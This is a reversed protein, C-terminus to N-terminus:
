NESPNNRIVAPLDRTDGALLLNNGRAYEHIFEIRDKSLPHTSLFPPPVDRNKGDINMLSQFLEDAGNLHGYEAAVAALGTRDAQLEQSRTFNLLTIMGASNVVKGVFYESSLGSIASLLLGIVVGRGMAIVPHRHLIHGMEHAIVMALANEHPLMDIIGRYIYIHGGLTAYANKVAADIYHVNFQMEPPVDMHRALRDSIHQLYSTVEMHSKNEIGHEFVLKQEIEFPIYLALKEALLALIVVALFLTGFVGASLILFDKFPHKESVNIGEPIEPNSYDM